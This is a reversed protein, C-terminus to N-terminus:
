SIIIVPVAARLGASGGSCLSSGTVLSRVQSSIHFRLSDEGSVGAQRLLDAKGVVQGANEVLAKLVEFAKDGLPVPAGDRELRRRGTLLTYAGFALANDAGSSRAQISDARHSAVGSVDAAGISSPNAGAPHDM